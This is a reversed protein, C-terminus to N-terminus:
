PWKEHEGIPPLRGGLSALICGLWVGFGPERIGPLVGPDARLWTRGSRAPLTPLDNSM